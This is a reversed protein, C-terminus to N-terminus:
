NYYIKKVVTRNFIHMLNRVSRVIEQPITKQVDESLPPIGSREIEKLKEGSYRRQFGWRHLLYSREDVIFFLFYILNRVRVCAYVVHLQM